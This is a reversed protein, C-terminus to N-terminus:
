GFKTMTGSSGIKNFMIYQTCKVYKPHIILYFVLNVVLIHWLKRLELATKVYFNDANDETKNKSGAQSDSFYSEM